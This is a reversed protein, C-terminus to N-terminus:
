LPLLLPLMVRNRRLPRPKQQLGSDTFPLVIALHLIPSIPVGFVSDLNTVAPYDPPAPAPQGDMNM